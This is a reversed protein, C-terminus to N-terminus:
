GCGFGDGAGLGAAAGLTVGDGAGLGAGAGFGEGGAPPGSAHSSQVRRARAPLGTEAIGLYLAHLSVDFFPRQRSSMLFLPTRATM